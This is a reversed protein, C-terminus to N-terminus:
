EAKIQACLGPPCSLLQERLCSGESFCLDSFVLSVAANWGEGPFSALTYAAAKDTSFDWAEGQSQLVATTDLTVSQYLLGRTPVTHLVSRQPFPFHTEGTLVSSEINIGM